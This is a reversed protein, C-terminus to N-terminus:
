PKSHVFAKYQLKPTLTWPKCISKYLRGRAHTCVWFRLCWKERGCIQPVPTSIPPRLMTRSACSDTKKWSNKKLIKIKWIQTSCTYRDQPRVCYECRWMMMWEYHWMVMCVTVDDSVCVTVDDYMSDCWWVYQWMVMCVTVDDFLDVQGRVCCPVLRAVETVFLANAEAM